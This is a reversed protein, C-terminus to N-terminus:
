KGCKWRVVLFGSFGCIHTASIEVQFLREMRRKPAVLRGDVIFLLFGQGLALAGLLADVFDFLLAGLFLQLSLQFGSSSLFADVSDVPHVLTRGVSLSTGGLLPFCEQKSLASDVVQNLAVLM